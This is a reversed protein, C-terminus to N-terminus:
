FDFSREPRPRNEDFEWPFVKSQVEIDKEPLGSFGTQDSAELSKLRDTLEESDLQNTNSLPMRKTDVAAEQAQVSSKHDLTDPHSVGASLKGLAEIPKQVVDSISLDRFHSKWVDWWPKFTGDPKSSNWPKQPGIFHILKIRSDNSHFYNFAGEFYSSLYKSTDQQVSPHEHDRSITKPAESTGDPSSSAFYNCAPLYEYHVTPTVNYLFPLKIWNSSRTNDAKSVDSEKSGLLDQVWDPQSNFYQNLLGQDAGDFTTSKKPKVDTALRVLNQYDAENPKIVFVGSNFVDPFGSDPSALIGNTAFELQLLDLVSGQSQGSNINPLTDADLYLVQSYQQLSWLHIKSFTKGLEPRKLTESLKEKHASSLATIELVKDYISELLQIQEKSLYYEEILVVLEIDRGKEGANDILHRMAIGLVLIGPLYDIGYLLTAVAKTM